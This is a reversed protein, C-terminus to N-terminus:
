GPILRKTQDSKFSHSSTPWDDRTSDAAEGLEHGIVNTPQHLWAVGFRKRLDERLDGIVVNNYLALTGPRHIQISKRWPAEM